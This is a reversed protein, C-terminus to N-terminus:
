DAWNGWWECKQDGAGTGLELPVGEKPSPAFISHCHSFLPFYYRVAGSTLTTLTQSDSWLKNCHDAEEAREMGTTSFVNVPCWRIGTLVTTQGRDVSHNARGRGLCSPTMKHCWTSHWGLCARSRWGLVYDRAVRDSPNRCELIKSMLWMACIIYSIQAM